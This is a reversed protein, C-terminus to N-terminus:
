CFSFRDHPTDKKPRTDQNQTKGHQHPRRGRDERRMAAPTAAAMGSGTATM